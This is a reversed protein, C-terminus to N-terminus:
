RIRDVILPSVKGTCSGGDVESDETHEILDSFGVGFVSHVGFLLLKPLGTSVRGCLGVV